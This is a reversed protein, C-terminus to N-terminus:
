RVRGGCRRSVVAGRVREGCRDQECWLGASADEAGAGRVRSRLASALASHDAGPMMLAKM